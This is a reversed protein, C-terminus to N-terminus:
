ARAMSFHGFRLCGAATCPLTSACLRVTGRSQGCGLRAGAARGGRDCAFGGAFTLCYGDGLSFRITGEFEHAVAHILADLADLVREIVAISSPKPSGRSDACTPFLIYADAIICSHSAAARGSTGPDSRYLGEASLQRRPRDPGRGAILAHRAAPTLYIEDAPTIAEIRVILALVDGFLEGDLTAVDGLGIVVRMSLRDRRQPQGLGLAEQM